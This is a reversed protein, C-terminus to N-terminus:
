FRKDVIRKLKGSRLNHEILDSSVWELRAPGVVGNAISEALMPKKAYIAKLIEPEFQVVQSILEKKALGIRVVLADRNGEHVLVLQFQSFQLEQWWPSLCSQIDEFYLTVPGVRASEESRGLIQFRRNPNLGLKETWMGRDGVPYRLLPMLKRTLNTLVVLGEQGVESVPELTEEDLIEVVTAESFVRHEGNACTSDAYGVLGGDVSAYGTSRMVMNPFARAILDKQDEYLSEGGFLFGRLSQGLGNQGTTIKYEALRVATSPLGVLFDLNFNDVTSLIDPPLMTGGMPFHVTGGPIQEISKNLFLFSAYLEGAYFLNGMRSGPRYLGNQAIGWGFWRTFEAWESNSYFSFKPAGTTGGSKFVLGDSLDATLLGKGNVGAATWFEKQNVVPLMKLSIAPGKIDKYLVRYYDSNGKAWEVIEALSFVGM